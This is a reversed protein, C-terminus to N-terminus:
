RFKNRLQEFKKFDHKFNIVITGAVKDHLGQNTKSFAIMVFGLGLFLGSPVYTVLRSLAQFLSLKEYTHADVIKCACAWKGPTAGMYMWFGLTYLAMIFFTILQITFYKQFFNEATLKNLIMIGTVVTESGAETSLENLLVEADRGAFIFSSVPTMIPAIILILIFLDIAAAIIRRNLSSYNVVQENPREEEM